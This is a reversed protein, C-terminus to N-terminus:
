WIKLSSWKILKLNKVTTKFFTFLNANAFIATGSYFTAQQDFHISGPSATIYFSDESTTISYDGNSDLIATEVISGSRTLFINSNSLPLGDSRSITGSITRVVVTNITISDSLSGCTGPCNIQYYYTTTTTPTATPTACNTCSLSTSPTWTITCNSNSLGIPLQISDGVNITAQSFPSGSSGGDVVNILYCYNGIGLVPCNDDSVSINLRNTGINTVTPTWTVTLQKQNGSGTITYTAGSLFNDNIISIV